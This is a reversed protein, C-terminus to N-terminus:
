RTSTIGRNMYLGTNASLWPGFENKATTKCESPVRMLFLFQPLSQRPIAGEM